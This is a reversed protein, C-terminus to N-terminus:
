ILLTNSISFINEGHFVFDREKGAIAMLFSKSSAAKPLMWDHLEIIILPFDDIWETNQSFLNAEFGEIDIKIIFPIFKTKPFKDLLENVTVIKINGDTSAEVRLGNNGLGPDTITCVGASSGIAAEIFVVNKSSKNNIRAQKINDSDPEVCLIKAHKYKDSFFKTALGINGGCDLILPVSGNNELESYLSIIEEYRSLKNLEYDNRIYIQAFTSYDATDRIEVDFFKNCCIDYLIQTKLAYPTLSIYRSKKGKINDIILSALRAICAILSRLIMLLNAGKIFYGSKVFNKGM